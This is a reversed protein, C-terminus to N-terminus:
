KKHSGWPRVDKYSDAKMVEGNPYKCWIISDEWDETIWIKWVRALRGRVTVWQGLKFPFHKLDERAEKPKCVEM